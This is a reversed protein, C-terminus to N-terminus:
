AITLVKGQTIRALDSVFRGHGCGFDLILKEDGKLYRKLHPFIKKKQMKTVTELEDESHRIDIVSRRGYQRARQEWYEITSLKSKGSILDVCKRGIQFLLSKIVEVKLM